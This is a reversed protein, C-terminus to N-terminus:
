ARGDPVEFRWDAHAVASSPKGQFRVIWRPKKKKKEKGEQRTQRDHILSIFDLGFTLSHSM